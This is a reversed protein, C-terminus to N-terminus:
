SIEMLGRHCKERVFEDRSDMGVELVERAEDTGIRVLTDIACSRIEDAKGRGFWKKGELFSYLGPISDNSRIMAVAKFFARIEQLEKKHFEKSLMREMLPALAEEGMRGLNLAAIGRIKPDRDDLSDMMYKMAESGGIFGLAQLAERRVRVDSHGLTKGLCPVAEPNGIRGHKFIICTELHIYLVLGM